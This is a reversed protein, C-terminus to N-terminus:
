TPLMQKASEILEGADFPKGIFAEPSRSVDAPGEEVKGSFMLVPIAGVGHREQVRRLMEWGDLRPLMVDLLILDFSEERARRSAVEGDGTTEVEYGERTLDDELALAIGPEDEAVLIRSM